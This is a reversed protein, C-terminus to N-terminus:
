NALCVAGALFARYALQVDLHFYGGNPKRIEDPFDWYQQKYWKEFEVQLESM